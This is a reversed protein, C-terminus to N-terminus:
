NGCNFSRGFITNTARRNWDEGANSKTQVHGQECCMHVCRIYGRPEEDPAAHLEVFKAAGGCFPCPKLETEM